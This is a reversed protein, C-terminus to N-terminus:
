FAQKVVDDVEQHVLVTLCRQVLVKISDLRTGHYICADTSGAIANYAGYVEMDDSRLVYGLVRDTSRQCLQWNDFLNMLNGFFPLLVIPKEEAFNRLIPCIAPVVYKHCSFGRAEELSVM